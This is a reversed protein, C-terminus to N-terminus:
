HLALFDLIKLIYAKRACWILIDTNLLVDFEPQLKRMTLLRVRAINSYSFM